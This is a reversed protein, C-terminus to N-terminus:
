FLWVWLLTGCLHATWAFKTMAMALFQPSLALLLVALNAALTPQDPFVRRAVSALLLLSCAALTPSLAWSLNARSFLDDLFAFGPLFGSAWYGGTANYNEYPLKWPKKM